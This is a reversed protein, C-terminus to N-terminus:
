FKGGHGSFGGGGITTGGGGLGGGGFSSNSKTESPDPHPIVVETTHSFRDWQENLNLSNRDVYAAASVAKFVSKMKRKGIIVAILAILLPIVIIIALKMLLSPGEGTRGFYQEYQEDYQGNYDEPNTDVPTGNTNLELFDRCTSIYDEFGGYWDNNRFDDLFEDALVYKGYDTFTSNGVNGHAALGYDRDAMSLLLIIGDRDEGYGLDYYDYVMRALAFADEAGDAERYDSVTVVYVSCGYDNSVATAEDELTARETENLLGAADTIHNLQADSEDVAAFVPMGLTVVLTLVIFIGLFKKKM